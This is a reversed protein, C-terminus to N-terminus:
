LSKLIILELMRMQIETFNLCYGYYDESLM